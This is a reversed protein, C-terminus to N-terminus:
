HALGAQKLRGGDIRRRRRLRRGTEALERPWQLPGAKSLSTRASRFRWKRLEVGDIRWGGVIHQDAARLRLDIHHDIKSYIFRTSAERLQFLSRGSIVKV